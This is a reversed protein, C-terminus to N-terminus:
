EGESKAQRADILVKKIHQMLDQSHEAMHAGHEEADLLILRELEELVNIADDNTPQNDM